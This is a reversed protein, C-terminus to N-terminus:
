RGRHRDAGGRRDSRTGTRRVAAAVEDPHDGGRLLGLAARAASVADSDRELLETPQGLREATLQRLAAIAREEGGETRYRHHLHLIM